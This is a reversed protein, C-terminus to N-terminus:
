PRSEMLRRIATAVRAESFRSEVMRVIGDRDVLVFGAHFQAKYARQNETPQPVRRGDPLTTYRTDSVVLAAPANLETYYHRKLYELENAHTMPGRGEFYGVTQTVITIELADGFERRLRRLAPMIERSPTLVIFSIVGPTPRMAVNGGDASGTGFWVGQLTAARTGYLAYLSDREDLQPVIDRLAGIDRRARQLVTHAGVAGGSDAAFQALTVYSHLLAWSFEERDHPTLQRGVGIVAEAQAVTAGDDLAFDRAFRLMLVHASLRWVAAGPARLADLTDLYDRAAAVRHPTAALYISVIQALTHARTGAPATAESDRRRAVAAAALSDKGAALYLEALLLLDRPRTTAITFTAACRRAAEASVTLMTDRALTYQTTDPGTRWFLTMTREVAQVCAGATYFAYVSDQAQAIHSTGVGTALLAVVLASAASAHIRAGSAGAALRDGHDRM